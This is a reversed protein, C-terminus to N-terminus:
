SQAELRRLLRRKSGRVKAWHRCSVLLGCLLMGLALGQTFDIGNRLLHNSAYLATDKLSMHAVMLLLAISNFVRVRKNYKEAEDQAYDVTQLVTTEMEKGMDKVSREGNLSERLDTEYYDSLEILLELEPM